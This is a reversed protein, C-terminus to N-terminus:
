RLLESSSYQLDRDLLMELSTGKPLVVGKNRSLLVAAVGAAAGAAAGTIPHGAIGGAIGGGMGGIGVGEGIKRADAKDGEGTIKGEKRDVQGGADSGSLRARFDRTVGNPLTLSDFRVYLEGKNALRGPPKVLTLTGTVQSGRPIVIRGDVNIPFATQLYIRDGEHSHKTDVANLMTLPIHTGAKVTIEPAPIPDPRSALVPTETSALAGPQSPSAPSKEFGERRYILAGESETTGRMIERNVTLVTHNNSMRWRDMITYSRPASVLTNILLAAGEWKVASNMAEGHYRYKSDSGDLAYSWKAITGGSDTSSCRIGSDDQEITLLEDPQTSLARVNSAAPDFVWKGSFDRDPNAASLPTVAVGTIVFTLLTLIRAIRSM